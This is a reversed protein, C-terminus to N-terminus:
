KNRKKNLTVTVVCNYVDQCRRERLWGRGDEDSGRWEAGARKWRYRGMGDDYDASSYGVGAFGRWNGSIPPTYLVSDINWDHSGVIPSGTSFGRSATVRLESM